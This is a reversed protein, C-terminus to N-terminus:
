NERLNYESLSMDEQEMADIFMRKSKRITSCVLSNDFYPGDECGRHGNSSRNRRGLGQVHM